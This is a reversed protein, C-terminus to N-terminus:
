WLFPEVRQVIQVTVQENEVALRVETQTQYQEQAWGKQLEVWVSRAQEQQQFRSEVQGL